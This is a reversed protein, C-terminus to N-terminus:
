GNGLNFFTGEGQGLFLNRQIGGGGEDTGLTLDHGFALPNLPQLFVIRGEGIDRGVLKIQLPQM